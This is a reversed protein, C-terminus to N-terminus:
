FFYIYNFVILLSPNIGGNHTEKPSEAFPLAMMKLSMMMPRRRRPDHKLRKRKREMRKWEM